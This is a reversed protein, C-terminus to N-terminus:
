RPEGEVRILMFASLAGLYAAPLSGAGTKAQIWLFWDLPGLLTGCGLRVRALVKTLASPVGGLVAYGARERFPDSVWLSVSRHGADGLDLPTGPHLRSPAERRKVDRGSRSRM